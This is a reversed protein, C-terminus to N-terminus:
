EDFPINIVRIVKAPVGVAVSGRPINSNPLVISGAGIVSHDGIKCPGLIIANSGIWVGKGIIIDRGTSPFDTMRKYLLSESNHTGTILSVNHGTFSYDGVEICGSNTNFLTNMMSTKPSIRLRTRDGLVRIEDIMIKMVIPRFVPILIKFILQLM